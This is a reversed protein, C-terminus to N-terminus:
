GVSSIYRVLHSPIDKKFNAVSGVSCSFRPMEAGSEQHKSLFANVVIECFDSDIFDTTMYHDQVFM